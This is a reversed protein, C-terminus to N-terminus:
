SKLTYTEGINRIGLELNYNSHSNALWSLPEDIPESSMKFTNCHIPIFVKADMDKAMRLAEEPDCHNRKWPNYAGIPMIAIDVKEGSDGLKTTYATDGGFLIRTGQRELIYANFSRGNNHFGKSRDKEWPYRWGFHKVELAKIYTQSVNAEDGWDLVKLSRWDLGDVVDKTNYAVVVDIMDPYKETIAELTQLDTHDMHVHSLLILDPKPLQDVTLAPPTLRSPGITTGLFNIGVRSFLVPDTLIIKGYFNILISSHGLWAINIETNKWESPKPTSKLSKAYVVGSGIFPSLIISGLTFKSTKSIFERRKM